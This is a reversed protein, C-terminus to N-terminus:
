KINNIYINRIAKAANKLINRKPANGAAPMAQGGPAEVRETRRDSFRGEATARRASM